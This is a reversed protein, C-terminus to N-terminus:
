ACGRQLTDVSIRAGAGRGSTSAKGVQGEDEDACAPARPLSLVGRSKPVGSRFLSLTGIAKLQTAILNGFGM